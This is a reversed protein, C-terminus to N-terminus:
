PKQPPESPPDPEQFSSPINTKPTSLPEVQFSTPGDMAVIRVRSGPVLDEEGHHRAMATTLHGGILVEIQGEAQGGAPVTSYVTATTGVASDYKRTGDSQLRTLSLMLGYTGFM